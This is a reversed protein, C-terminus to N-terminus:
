RPALQGQELAKRIVALAADLQRQSRQLDILRRQASEAATQAKQREQDLRKAEADADALASDRRKVAEVAADHKHAADRWLGFFVVALAVLFAIIASARIRYRRIDLAAAAESAAILTGIDRDADRYRAAETLARGSLLYGPAKDSTLWQRAVAALRIQERSTQRKEALEADAPTSEAPTDALEEPRFPALMAPTWAKEDIDAASVLEASWYDLINQAAQREADNQLIAGTAQAKAVFARVAPRSGGESAAAKRQSQSARMLETNARQLEAFSNFRGGSGDSSKDKMM